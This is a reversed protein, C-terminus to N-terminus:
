KEERRVEVLLRSQDPTDVNTGEARLEWIQEYLRVGAFPPGPEVGPPRKNKYAHQYGKMAQELKAPDKRSLTNFSKRLWAADIPVERGDDTVGVVRLVKMTRDRNLESYMPYSSFPWLEIGFTICVLHVVILVAIAIHVLIIRRRTM